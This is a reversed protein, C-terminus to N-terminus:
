FVVWAGAARGGRHDKRNITHRWRCSASVAVALFSLGPCGPCAWPLAADSAIRLLRGLRASGAKAAKNQGVRENHLTYGVRLDLGGSM